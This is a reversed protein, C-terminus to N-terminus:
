EKYNRTHDSLTYVAIPKFKKNEYHWNKKNTVEQQMQPKHNWGLETIFLYLFHSCMVKYIEM